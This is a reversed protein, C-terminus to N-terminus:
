MTREPNVNHKYANGKEIKLKRTHGKRVVALNFIGAVPGCTNACELLHKTNEEM